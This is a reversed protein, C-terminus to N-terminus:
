RERAAWALVAANEEIREFSARYRDDRMLELRHRVQEHAEALATRADETRGSAGLARALAVRIYVEHAGDSRTELFVDLAEKAHELAADARGVGLEMNALSALMYPLIQRAVRALALGAHIETFAHATKGLKFLALAHYGRSAGEMRQDGERRFGEIAVVAHKQAEEYRGLRELTGALDTHATDVIFRLGRAEADSLVAFLRTAADEYEGVLSRAFAANTRHLLAHRAHGAQDLYNAAADFHQIQAELDGRADSLFARYVHLQARAALDVDGKVLRSVIPEIDEATALDGSFLAGTGAASALRCAANSPKAMALFPMAIKLLERHREANGLKLHSLLANAVALIYTDSGERAYLMAEEAARASREVDGLWRHAEVDLMLLEARTDDGPGCALGRSVLDRAAALEGGGLMQTAARMYYSAARGPDGGAELHAALVAPEGEGRAELWAAAARHGLARDEPTLMSYATDRVLAHRFTYEPEDDFRSQTRASVIERRALAGVWASAREDNDGLVAAVGAPWFFHGFISAARLVRRADPELAELRAEVVSLVSDPLQADKGEAVARVLEELFFANGNSLAVVRDITEQPVKAGLISRALRDSSRKSLEELRLEQVRRDAFLTPHAARLPPRAFVAVLLPHDATAKLAADLLRLTAADSWHADDLVILLPRKCEAIIWEEFAERIHEAMLARDGRAAALPSAPPADIPAGIIECAFPFVRELAAVDGLIGALHSRLRAQKTAAPADDAIALARRVAQGLLGHPARSDLPDARAIWTTVDDGRERVRHLWERRLRSKGVGADAIVILARAIREGEVEELTADLTLLERDRGLCPVAIGLLKRSEDGPGSESVLELGADSQRVDFRADLLGATTEDIRIPMAGTRSSRPAERVLEAARDIARVVDDGGGTGRVTALSIPAQPLRARLALACRAAALARETAGAAEIFRLALAGNALREVDGGFRGGIFTADELVPQVESASAMARGVIVMASLRAERTSIGPTTPETAPVVLSPTSLADTGGLRLHVKRLARAMAAMDAFRESPDKAMARVLIADLESPVDPREVRARPTEQFLIKALVGVLDEGRFPARGTLCAHLVCALSFQDARADVDLSGRAQEPSIYGPTGILMGEQTMASAATGVRAIGFDVLVPRDYGDSALLLNSPKVDRHVIGAAHAAALADAVNAGLEAVAMPDLRGLRRVRGTLTEGEIWSMALFARGDPTEGHSVYGVIGPHRLRALVDAERRFREGADEMTLHLVKLAAYGGTTQDIARHVSAMGGRGAQGVIEFRGAILTGADM